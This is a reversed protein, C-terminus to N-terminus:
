GLWMLVMPLMLFVLVLDMRFEVRDSRSANGQSNPTPNTSGAVSISTSGAAGDSSSASNSPSEETEVYGKDTWYGMATCDYGYYDLVGMQDLSQICYRCAGLRRLVPLTCFCESATRNFLLHAYYDSNDIESHFVTLGNNPIDTSSTNLPLLGCERLQSEIIICSTCGEPVTSASVSTQIPLSTITTSPYAFTDNAFYGFQTCDFFYADAGDRPGNPDVLNDLTSDLCGTCTNLHKIGEVCLCKAEAYDKLQNTHPGAEDAEHYAVGSLNRDVPGHQGTEVARWDRDLPPLSCRSLLSSVIDCDPCQAATTAILVILFLPFLHVPM